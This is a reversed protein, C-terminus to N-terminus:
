LLGGLRIAETVAGVLYIGVVLLVTADFARGLPSRHKPLARARRRDDLVRRCRTQVRQARVRSPVPAILSGLRRLIPDSTDHTM